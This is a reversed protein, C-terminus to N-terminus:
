NARTKLTEILAEFETMVDRNFTNVKEGPVDFYLAAISVNKPDNIPTLVRLEFNKM